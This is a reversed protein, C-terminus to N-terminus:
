TEQLGFVPHIQTLNGGLGWVPFLLTNLFLCTKNPFPTGVTVTVACVYLSLHAQSRARYVWGNKRKSSFLVQCSVPSLLWSSEQFVLRPFCPKSVPDRPTDTSLLDPIAAGLYLSGAEGLAVDLVPCQCPPLPSFFDGKAGSSGRRCLARCLGHPHGTRLGSRSASSANLHGLSRINSIVALTDQLPM